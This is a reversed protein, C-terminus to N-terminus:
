LTHNLNIITCQDLKIQDLLDDYGILRGKITIKSSLGIDHANVPNSFQCFVKGEMTIDTQNIESVHGTIAITKNLYKRESVLTGKAYESYIESVTLSYAAEEKEINRHNGYLYVYGLIALAAIALFIVLRRM